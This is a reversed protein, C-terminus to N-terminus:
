AYQRVDVRRGLNDVETASKGDLVGGGCCRSEGGDWIACLRCLGPARTSLVGTERPEFPAIESHNSQVLM